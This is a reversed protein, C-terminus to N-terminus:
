TLTRLLMKFLFYSILEREEIFDDPFSYNTPRYGIFLKQNTLSLPGM